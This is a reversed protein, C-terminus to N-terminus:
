KRHLQLPIVSLISEGLQVAIKLRELIFQIAQERGEVSITEFAKSEMAAIALATSELIGYFKVINKIMIGELDQLVETRNRFIVSYALTILPRNERDRRLFQSIHDRPPFGDILAKLGEMNLEIEERLAFM